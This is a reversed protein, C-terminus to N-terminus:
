RARRSRTRPAGVTAAIRHEPAGGSAPQRAGGAGNGLQERAKAIRRGFPERQLEAIADALVRSLPYPLAADLGAAAIETARWCVQLRALLKRGRDALRILRQRGDEAGVEAVVLGEAVMMAVTQTVAPQTIGALQAIQGITALEREILARMVPTYRPRYSLGADGYAAEVASDLLDLLHRLQTGLGQKM